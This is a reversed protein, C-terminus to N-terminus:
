GRGRRQGRSTSAWAPGTRTEKFSMSTGLGSASDDAYPRLQRRRGDHALASCCGWCPSAFMIRDYQDEKPDVRDWRRPWNSQPRRVMWKAVFAPAEGYGRTRVGVDLWDRGAEPVGPRLFLEFM